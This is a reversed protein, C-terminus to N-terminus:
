YLANTDDELKKIVSDIDKENAYPSNDDAYNAINETVFLFLDCLYINFLLPGLISGQPVGSLIESWKSYSSNVRVRQFRNRLYSDIFMLSNYSLGYAELKAIFLEHCLCDFAKSLDTLLVGSCGKNDISRRWKELMVIICHQASFGKRFGCQSKSLINDFFTYLQRYIIKEYIKM